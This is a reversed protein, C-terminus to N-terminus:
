YSKFYIAQQQNYFNTSQSRNAEAGKRNFLVTVIIFALQKGTFWTPWGAATLQGDLILISAEDDCSDSGWPWSEVARHESCRLEFKRRQLKFLSM